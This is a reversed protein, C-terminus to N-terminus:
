KSNNSLSSSSISAMMGLSQNYSSRMVRRWRWRVMMVRSGKGRRMLWKMKLKKRKSLGLIIM